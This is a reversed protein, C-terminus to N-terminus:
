YRWIDINPYIQKIKGDLGNGRDEIMLTDLTTNRGAWVRFEKLLDEDSINDFDNLSLTKLKPLTNNRFNM